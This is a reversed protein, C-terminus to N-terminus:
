LIPAGSGGRSYRDSQWSFGSAESLLEPFGTLGAAEETIELESVGCVLDWDKGTDAKWNRTPEGHNSV